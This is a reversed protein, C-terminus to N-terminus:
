PARGAEGAAPLRVGEIQAAEALRQVLARAQEAWRKREIAAAIRDRVAEFPLVAGDARADLRLVHVGYRTEVPEPAVTGPEIAKLVAEFEPVTDGEALQGLMGGNERSPCDSEARAIRGFAGPDRAIEALVAAARKRARPRATVDRPDDAFLIHSAEFLAPSVFREPNADYVARVEGRGPPSASLNQDLLVRLAAEEDTEIRGGPLTRPEPAIGARAAEQRLLERVALARAAAHWAWGPKGKPAAHNQAEAAIARAPITVGNVVVDPFLPKNM